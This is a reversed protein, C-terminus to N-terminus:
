IGRRRYFAASVVALVTLAAWANHIVAAAVTAGAAVVIAGLAAQAALMAAVVAAATAAARDRSRLALALVAWYLLLIAAGSRHLMHLMRRAPDALATAGASSEPARLLDPLAFSAGAPWWEGECAPLTGCSRAAGHASVLAGLAFQVALLAVGAWIWYAPTSSGSPMTSRAQLRLSWFAGLLAMGALLNGLTVAPTQAEATVIGLLTLFVTLGIIV